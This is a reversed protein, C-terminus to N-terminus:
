QMLQNKIWGALGQSILELLRFIAWLVWLLMKWLFKLITGLFEGLMSKENAM